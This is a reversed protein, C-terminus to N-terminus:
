TTQSSPQKHQQHQSPPPPPRSCHHSPPLHPFSFHPEAQKASPAAVQYLRRHGVSAELSKSVIRFPLQGLYMLLFVRWGALPLGSSTEDPLSSEGSAKFRTELASMNKMDLETRRWRLGEGEDVVSVLGALVCVLVHVGVVAAAGGAEDTNM